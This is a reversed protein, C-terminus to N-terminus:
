IRRQIGLAWSIAWSTALVHANRGLLWPNSEPNERSGEVIVTGRSPNAVGVVTGPIEDVVWVEVTNACRSNQLVQWLPFRNEPVVTLYRNESNSYRGELFSGAAITAPPILANAYAPPLDVPIEVVESEWEGAFVHPNALLFDWAGAYGLYPTYGHSHLLTALLKSAQATVKDQRNSVAIAASRNAATLAPNGTIAFYPTKVSLRIQCNQAGNPPYSPCSEVHPIAATSAASM